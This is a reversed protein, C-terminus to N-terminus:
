YLSTGIKRIISGTGTSVCGILAFQLCVGTGTSTGLAWPGGKFVQYHKYLTSIGPTYIFTGGRPPGIYLLLNFSCTCYQVGLIRGGFAGGVGPIAAHSVFPAFLFGLLLIVILLTLKM